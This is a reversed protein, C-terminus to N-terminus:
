LVNEVSTLDVTHLVSLKKFKEIFAYRSRRKCFRINFFKPSNSELCKLQSLPSLNDARKFGGMFKGAPENSSACCTTCFRFAPILRTDLKQSLLISYRTYMNYKCNRKDDRGDNVNQLRNSIPIICSPKLESIDLCYVFNLVIPSFCKIFVTVYKHLTLVFIM